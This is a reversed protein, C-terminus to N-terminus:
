EYMHLLSGHRVNGRMGAEVDVGAMAVAAHVQRDRRIAVHLAIKALPDVIAGVLAPGAHRRGDERRPLRQIVQLPHQGLIRPNRDHADGARAIREGRRRQRQLRQPQHALGIRFHQEAHGGVPQAHRRVGLRQALQCYAVDRQGDVGDIRLDAGLNVGPDAVALLDIAPKGAASNIQLRWASAIRMSLCCSTTTLILVIMM